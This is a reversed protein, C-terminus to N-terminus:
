RRRSPTAKRAALRDHARESVADPQGDHLVPVDPFVMMRTCGGNEALDWALWFATDDVAGRAFVLGGSAPGEEANGPLELETCGHDICREISQKAMRVGDGGHLAAVTGDRGLLVPRGVSSMGALAGTLEAVEGPASTCRYALGLREDDRPSATIVATESLRCLPSAVTPLRGSAGPLALRAPACITPRDSVADAPWAGGDVTGGCGVLVLVLFKSM